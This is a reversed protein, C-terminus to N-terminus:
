TIVVQLGQRYMGTDARDGVELGYIVIEVILSLQLWASNMDGKFSLVEYLPM